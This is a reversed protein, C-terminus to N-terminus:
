QAAIIRVSLFVLATLEFQSAAPLFGDMVIGGILAGDTVINDSLAYEFNQRRLVASGPVYEVRFPHRAVMDVTNEVMAANDAEIYGRARLVQDMGTPLFVRVRAGHAAGLMPNDKTFVAMNHVYIRLIVTGDGETVNHIPDANEMGSQDGRRGDMFSREDGASPTNIFSNFVPHGGPAGAREELNEYDFVPRDPYFSGYNQLLSYTFEQESAINLLAEVVNLRIESALVRVSRGSAYGLAEAALDQRATAKPTRVVDLDFLIRVAARDYQAVDDIARHLIAEVLEVSPENAASTGFVHRALEELAKTQGAAVAKEIGGPAHIARAERSFITQHQRRREANM